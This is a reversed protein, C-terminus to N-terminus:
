GYEVSGLAAIQVLCDGDDPDLPAADAFLFALTIRDRIESCIGVEAGRIVRMAASVLKEPTIVVVRPEKGEEIAEREAFTAHAEIIEKAKNEKYGYHYALAWYRCAGTEVVNFLTEAAVKLRAARNM